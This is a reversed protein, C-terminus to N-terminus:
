IQEPLTKNALQLLEVLTDREIKQQMASKMRGAILSQETASVKINWLWGGRESNNASDAIDFRLTATQWFWNDRKFPEEIRATITMRYDAQTQELRELGAQALASFVLQRTDNNLNETRTKFNIQKLQSVLSRRLQQTQWPSQAAVDAQVISLQRRRSNALLQLQWARYSNAMVNLADPSQVQLADETQEDLNIM